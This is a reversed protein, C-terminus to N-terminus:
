WFSFDITILVVNQLRGLTRGAISPLHFDVMKMPPGEVGTFISKQV